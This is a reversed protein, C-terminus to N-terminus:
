GVSNTSWGDVWRGGEQSPATGRSEGCYQLIHFGCFQKKTPPPPLPAHCHYNFGVYMNQLMYLLMTACSVCMVYWYHLITNFVFSCHM